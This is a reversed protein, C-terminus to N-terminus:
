VTGAEVVAITVLMRTVLVAPADAVKVIERFPVTMMGAAEMAALEVARNSMFCTTVVPCSIAPNAEATVTL